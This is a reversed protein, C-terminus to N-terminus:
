AGLKVGFPTLYTDVLQRFAPIMDPRHMLMTLEGTGAANVLGLEAAWGRLLDQTLPGTPNTENNILPTVDAMLQLFAGKGAPPAPPTAAPAAPAAPSGAGMATRLEAEVKKVLIDQVGRKARWSGDANKAKTRSHIRADWPLGHKDVEVDAPNVTPAGTQAGAVPPAANAANTPNAPEQPGTAPPTVTPATASPAADATSPAPAASNQGGFVAATDVDQPQHQDFKQALPSGGFIAATDVHEGNETEEGDDNCEAQPAPTITSITRSVEGVTETISQLGNGALVNIAQALLTLEGNPTNDTIEITLKM